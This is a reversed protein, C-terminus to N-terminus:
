RSAQTQAPKVDKPAAVKPAETSLEKVGNAIWQSYGMVGTYIAQRDCLGQPDTGRSTVGVLINKGTAADKVYAPGGSDGHCAGRGQSQDLTIEEGTATLSLVRIGDIQRLLGDGSGAPSLRGTVPDKQLQYKEVGFGALTVATGKRLTRAVQADAVQALKFDAPLAVDFGILGIDNDTGRGKLYNEHRKAKTVVRVHSLDNNNVEEIVRTFDTDLVLLAAVLQSGRPLVLCHAATVAIKPAIASATCTASGQEGQSNQFILLLGVVGNEKQFQATSGAGGIINSSEAETQQFTQGQDSSSQGCATLVMLLTMSLVLKIMGTKM